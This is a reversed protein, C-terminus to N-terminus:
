VNKKYAEMTKHNLEALLSYYTHEPYEILLVRAIQENAAIQRSMQMATGVSTFFGIVAKLPNPLSLNKVALTTM